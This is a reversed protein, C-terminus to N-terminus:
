LIRTDNSVSALRHKERVEHMSFEGTAGWRNTKPHDYLRDFNDSRSDVALMLPTEGRGNRHNANIDPQQLLLEIAREDEGKAAYHLAVEGYKDAVRCLDPYRALLLKAAHYGAAYRCAFHLGIRGDKSSAHYVCGPNAKILLQIIGVRGYKCAKHFATMGEADELAGDVRDDKILRNVINFHGNRSALHLATGGAMTKTIWLFDGYDQTNSFKSPKTGDEPKVIANVGLTIDPRGLMQEVAVINGYAVALHWPSFGKRDLVNLDAHRNILHEILAGNEQERHMTIALHLPTDGNGDPYSMNESRLETALDRAIEHLGLTIALHLGTTDCHNSKAFGVYCPWRLGKDDMDGGQSSSSDHLSSSGIWVPEPLLMLQRASSVSKENRLFRLLSERLSAHNGEVRGAKNYHNIWNKAAYDLLPSQSVRHELSRKDVCPGDSFRKWSLLDICAKALKVQSSSTDLTSGPLATYELMHRKLSPHIFRAFGDSLINVLGETSKLIGESDWLDRSDLEASTSLLALLYLLEQVQLTRLSDRMITLVDAGTPTPRGHTISDRNGFRRLPIKLAERLVDQAFCDQTSSFPSKVIRMHDLAETYRAESTVAM